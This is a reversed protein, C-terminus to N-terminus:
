CPKFRIHRIKPVDIYKEVYDYTSRGFSELDGGIIADGVRARRGSNTKIEQNNWKEDRHQTWKHKDMEETRSCPTQAITQAATIEEAPDLRAWAKRRDKPLAVSGTPVTRTEEEAAVPELKKVKRCDKPPAVSGTPVRSTEDELTKEVAYIM